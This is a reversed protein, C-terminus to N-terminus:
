GPKEGQRIKGLFADVALRILEGGETGRLFGRVGDIMM